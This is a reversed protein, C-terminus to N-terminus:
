PITISCDTPLYEHMLEAEIRIVCYPEMDIWSRDNYEFDKYVNEIERTIGEVHFGFPSKELYYMIDTEADQDARHTKAPFIKELNLFFVIQITTQYLSENVRKSDGDIYFFNMGDITVGSAADRDIAFVDKYEDDGYYVAPIYGTKKKNKVRYARGFSYYHTLGWRTKLYGALQIQLKQIPADIGVPSSITPVTFAM